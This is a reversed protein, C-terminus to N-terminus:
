LVERWFTPDTLTELSVRNRTDPYRLLARPRAGFYPAEALTSSSLAALHQASEMLAYASYAHPMLVANPLSMAMDVWGNEPQKPHPKVWLHDFMAAQEALRDRWMEPRELGNPGQLSSDDDVQCCFLLAGGERIRLAPMPISPLMWKTPLGIPHLVQWCATFRLPHARVDILRDGYRRKAVPPMEFGIVIENDEVDARWSQHDDFREIWEERPLPDYDLRRVTHGLAELAPRVIGQLRYLNADQGPRRLDVALAIKM